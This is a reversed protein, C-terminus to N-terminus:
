QWCKFNKKFSFIIKESRVIDGSLQLILHRRMACNRKLQVVCSIRDGISVNTESDFLLLPHKWHTLPADPGTNFLIPPREPDILNQFEVTFWTCFGHFSGSKTVTFDLTKEISELDRSTVTKMDLDMVGKPIALLEDSSAVHDHIPIETLEKSVSRKMVSFDFGYVDDWFKLKSEFATNASCPACYLKSSSPWMKGDAALFMDRANIVSEIMFESILLTGMWESVILDLKEDVVLDEVMKNHLTIKGGYGNSKIIEEAYHSANSAEISHVKGAKGDRALFLSLIGTGSGVDMVSKGQLFAVNEKIAELYVLTRPRDSLMELHLRTEGYIDFYNRNQWNVDDEDCDITIHNVPVYGYVGDKEGWWWHESEKSIITIIDDCDLNLEVNSKSRYDYVARALFHNTCESDNGLSTPEENESSKELSRGLVEKKPKQGLREIEELLGNQSPQQKEYCNQEEQSQSEVTAM